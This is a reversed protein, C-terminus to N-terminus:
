RNSLRVNPAELLERTREVIRRSPAVGPPSFPDAWTRERGVMELTAEIIEKAATGAVWNAGVEVTEVWETSRRATVCPIRLICAEQQVGGSDTLVLGADSLLSVFERHGVPPLLVVRDNRSLRPLLGFADLRNQTRPHLPWVVQRNLVHPIENVASVLEDLVPPDDVNEQRHLTVLVYGPDSGARAAVGDRHDGSRVRSDALAEGITSGTVFIEGQVGEAEATLKARDSSVFLADSIHDIMVRNHEEPMRWDRSRLGAEVHGVILGLKRAALAGALNTNADGGVLIIAPREEVLVREIGTLMEATQEGPRIGPRMNGVRFEPSALGHEAFFVADMNASYHQGSHVVFHPLGSNRMEHLVPAFKVIGPRTGLVVCVVPKVDDVGIARNSM